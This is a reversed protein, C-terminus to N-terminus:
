APKKKGMKALDEPEVSILDAMWELIARKSAEFRDKGMTRLKQSEATFKNVVPGSVEVISYVDERQDSRRLFRALREARSDSGVAIMDVTCFGCQILAHKRLTDKSKAFPADKMHEPINEWAESVFGFQHNHSRRTRSAEIDVFVVEGAGLRDAMEAAAHDGDPLLSNGDYVCRILDRERM